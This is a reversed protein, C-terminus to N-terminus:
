NMRLCANLPPVGVRVGDVFCVQEGETPNVLLVARRGGDGEWATCIVAPLTCDEERAPRGFKKHLTVTECVIEPPAVMRGGFLVDGACERYLRSLNSVLTLVKKRDPIYDTVLDGWRSKPNGDQDLVLTMSDGAAFSYGIRYWLARDDCEDFPSCVQNGMFNYLYEHYLYSYLPVPVGIHYNLEFRNDSMQLNGIFPEAAASECGFLMAPAKRNWEGLMEQMAKTMWTGPAPPHGHDRAYCFYQGGGHNQDLIQAYDLGSEFLPMYAETLLERGVPSAPCIDVGRRQATCIRSIAVQGDPGACMGDELGRAEYEERMDYEEVLNSQLTYGFGSCYVGLLNGEAHLADRFDLLAETGGFPPWVYPPAWPATGEWHMLAVMVRGGTIENMERVTPLANVYPYMRNPNMTDTDHLGRVPYTIVLPADRYWDPLTNNEKIKKAGRPPHADNWRRYREAASTWHSGVAAWVIPYETKWSEGYGVGCWLRMQMVVGTEDSVFDIGKVGRAPDHAGMYLGADEWLYAFFQSSIMNPFVAFAGKSPYEPEEHSFWSVARMEADDVLAGENYPFLIQGGTGHPNNKKLKPLRVAPFDVWELLLAEENQRVEIQWVLADGECQLHVLVEMDLMGVGDVCFGSFCAGDETSERRSADRADLLIKEGARTRLCLQFLPEGSISREIGFLCVSALEGRVVDLSVSLAEARITDM